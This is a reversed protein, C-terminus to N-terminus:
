SYQLKRERLIQFGNSYVAAPQGITHRKVRINEGRKQIRRSLQLLPAAAPCSSHIPVKPRRTTFTVILAVFERGGGKVRECFLVACLTLSKFDTDM